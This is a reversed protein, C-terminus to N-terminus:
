GFPLRNRAPLRRLVPKAAMRAAPALLLISVWIVIALAANTVLNLPYLLFSDTLVSTAGQIVVGAGLWGMLAILERWLGLSSFCLILLITGYVAVGLGITNAGFYPWLSFNVAMNAACALVTFLLAERNRLQANLAKVLYYATITMGASGGMFRLVSATLAVSQADFAGRAFLLRVIAEANFGIFAAIPFSMLMVAAVVSVVHEHMDKQSSGGRTAMTLIGLPVAILQVTTDSIFRAYDVSPIIATGIWSSVVRETLVNVQWVLPLGMLPLIGLHFRRLVKCVVHSPQKEKPWLRDLKRFQNCTWLFFAVHSILIGTALWHVHDLYVALAAGVISGFNLLIPRWAIANYRGHAAELFSLMGSLVYFPTALGLISILASAIAHASHSAGPAFFYAVEASFSTLIFGILASFLMSLSIASLVLLRAKEKDEEYYKKYLPVLGASLAENLLVHIPSLFATQSIRFGAATDGVGFWAAFLVERLLALGKSALNGVVISLVGLNKFAV